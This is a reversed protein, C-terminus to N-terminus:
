GACMPPNVYGFVNFEIMISFVLFVGYSSLCIIGLRRDLRWGGFHVASIQLCLHCQECMINRRKRTYTYCAPLNYAFYYWCNADNISTFRSCLPDCMEVCSTTNKWFTVIRWCFLMTPLNDFHHRNPFADVECLLPFLIFILFVLHQNPLM